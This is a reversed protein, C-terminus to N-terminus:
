DMLYRILIYLILAIVLIVAALEINCKMNSDDYDLETNIGKKKLNVNIINISENIMDHIMIDQEVDQSIVPGKGDKDCRIPNDYFIEVNKNEDIERNVLKELKSEIMSKIETDSDNITDNIEDRKNMGPGGENTITANVKKQINSKITSLIVSSDSVVDSKMSSINVNSVQNINYNCGYEDSEETVFGFMSKKKYKNTFPPQSWKENPINSILVVKSNSVVKQSSTDIHKEFRNKIQNHIDNISTDNSLISGSISSNCAGM